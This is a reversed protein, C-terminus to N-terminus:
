DAGDESQNICRTISIIVKLLSNVKETVPTCCLWRDRKKPSFANRAPFLNMAALQDDIGHMLLHGNEGANFHNCIMEAHQLLHEPVM